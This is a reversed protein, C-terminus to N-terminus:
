TQCEYAAELSWGYAVELDASRCLLAVNSVWLCGGYALMLDGNHGQWAVNSVWVCVCSRWQPGALGRKFGMHLRSIQVTACRPWTQCGYAAEPDGGNGPLAVHCGYAVELDGSHDPVVVNSM